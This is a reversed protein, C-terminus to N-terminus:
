SFTKWEKTVDITMEPAKGSPIGFKAGSIEEATLVTEGSMPYWKNPVFDATGTKLRVQYHLQVEQDKGLELGSLDSSCM